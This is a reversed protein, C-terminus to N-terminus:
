DIRNTELWNGLVVMPWIRSWTVKPDDKLFAKWLEDIEDANFEPRNKLKSLGKDAFPKLENKLWKGWPFVFGMKKRDVIERPLLDSFSDVLLQKPSYPYKMNDDLGMVFEILHHDLFPVRVELSHAMSMQDADRLLVNQMYTNMEVWSVRSLPSLVYGDSEFGVNNKVIEFVRKTPLEKRNILKEVQDDLLVQRDFQYVNELDFSEQNLTRAIKESSIGPKLKKLLGAIIRRIGIPFSLIWKKNLLGIYRKFIPYGAFLEDGGLGSLAMTIGAEKTVKSVLWSNFGDGSPHDMDNMAEPIVALFDEPTLNIETHKTGFKESILRAYKAESFESEDFNINFTRVPIDSVESMIGVILSSDIGGSLFAGFPVDAVMRKRVAETLLNRVKEHVKEKTQFAALEDYDYRFDWYQVFKSEDDSIKYYFGPMLQKVESIITQPAHVTQYRLYDVLSDGDLHAKFIGSHILPRIESSFALTDNTQHYYITKIGVRDRVLLLEREKKDWIAFAFQGELKSIAEEGFHNFAALIVESDSETRYPYTSLEKKLEQYNYIEGNFVLVYRDFACTMPQNASDSLDIIKLRTHGLSLDPDDYLDAADPGRHDLMKNM